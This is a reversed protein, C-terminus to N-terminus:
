RQEGVLDGNQGATRGGRAKRAVLSTRNLRKNAFCLVAYGLTCSHKRKPFIHRAKSSRRYDNSDM